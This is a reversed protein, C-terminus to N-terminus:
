PNVTEREPRTLYVLGAIWLVLGATLAPIVWGPLLEHVAEVSIGRLAATWRDLRLNLIVLIVAWLLTIHSAMARMSASGFRRSTQMFNWIGLGLGVIGIVVAAVPDHAKWAVDVLWWFSAAYIGTVVIMRKGRTLTGSRTQGPPVSNEYHRRIALIKRFMFVCLTALILAYASWFATMVRYGTRDSWHEHAGLCRLAAQGGACWGLVFVWFVTFVLGKFRRERATPAARVILWQATIGGLVGILPSLWAGLLGSKAASATKAAGAVGAGAVGAMPLAALVGASFAQGPATRGLASEVFATVEEQLLKRGRSLRQKVVDESLELAEAVQEVSGHERYYLVLPDRYNAPIRELARWMIAEEERSIAQESPLAERAVVEDASELPEAVGTMERGERRLAKYVRNKLIGCLWSRLRSPEKLRQLHRWATIFTEQAVDESQGLNGMASYALSCILNQYRSVIRGFAERDGELTQAVLQEDSKEVATAEIVNAIM